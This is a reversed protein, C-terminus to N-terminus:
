RGYILLRSGAIFNKTAPATLTLRTIAATSRWRWIELRGRRNAQTTDANGNTTEMMKDFTTQAIKTGIIGTRAYIGTKTIVYETRRIAAVQAIAIVGFLLFFLGVVSSFVLGGEAAFGGVALVLFFFMSFAIGFLVSVVSRLTPKGVWVVTDGKRVYPPAPAVRFDPVETM